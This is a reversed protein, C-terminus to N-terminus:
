WSLYKLFEKTQLPILKRFSELYLKGKKTTSYIKIKRKGHADMKASILGQKNLNNLIPYLKSVNFELPVPNISELYKYLQYGYMSRSKLIWVIRFELLAKFVRKFNCSFSKDKKLAAAIFKSKVSTNKTSGSKLSKVM